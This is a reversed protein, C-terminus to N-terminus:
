HFPQHVTLIIYFSFILQRVNQEVTIAVFGNSLRKVHLREEQLDSADSANCASAAFFALFVIVCCSWGNLM